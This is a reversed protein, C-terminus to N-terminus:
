WGGILALIALLMLPHDNGPRNTFTISWKMLYGPSGFFTLFVAQVYLLCNVIGRSSWIGLGLSQLCLGQGPDRGQFLLRQVPFAASPWGPLSLPLPLPKSRPYLAGMKDINTENALAHMVSGAGLFLLAKFFAHTMLHFIGAAYAGVGVGIFM